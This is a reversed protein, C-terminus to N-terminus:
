PQKEAGPKSAPKWIQQWHTAKGLWDDDLCTPGYSPMYYKVAFDGVAHYYVLVDGCKQPMYEPKDSVPWWPRHFYVVDDKFSDPLASIYRWKLDYTKEPWEKEFKSM